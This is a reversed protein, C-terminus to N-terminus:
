IFTLLHLCLLHITQTCDPGSYLSPSPTGWVSDRQSSRVSAASSLKDKRVKGFFAEESKTLYKEISLEHESNKATLNQLKQVFESAVGGDADTFQLRLNFHSLHLVLAPCVSAMAKNLPSNSKEDVISSISEVSSVRSHAGFPRNPALGGDLFPDPVHRHDKAITRNARDLFDSYGQQTDATNGRPHSFYDQGGDAYTSGSGNVLRPTGDPTLVEPSHENISRNDWEPQTPYTQNVPNWDDTEGIPNVGGGDCDSERWSNAGALARSTNISRKHFDEMRQRWEVVPFRQLASRARLIAREEESSKLAM